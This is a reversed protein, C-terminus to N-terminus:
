KIRVLPGSYQSQYAMYLTKSDDRKPLVIKTEFEKTFLEWFEESNGCVCSGLIVYYGDPTLMRTPVGYDFYVEIGEISKGYENLGWDEPKYLPKGGCEIYLGRIKDLIEKHEPKIPEIGM